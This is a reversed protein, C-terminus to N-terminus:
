KKEFEVPEDTVLRRNEGILSCSLGVQLLRRMESEDFELGCCPDVGSVLDEEEHTAWVWDLLIQNPLHFSPSEQGCAM